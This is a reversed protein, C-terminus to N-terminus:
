AEPTSEMVVDLVGSAHTGLLSGTAVAEPVSEM